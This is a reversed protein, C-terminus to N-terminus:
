RERLVICTYADVYFACSDGESSARPAWVKPLLLVACHETTETVGTCERLADIGLRIRSIFIEPCLACGASLRCKRLACLPGGTPDLACARARARAYLTEDRAHSRGCIIGLQIDRRADLRPNYQMIPGLRQQRALIATYIYFTRARCRRANLFRSYRMLAGM